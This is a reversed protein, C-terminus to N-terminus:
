GGCGGLSQGTCPPLAVPREQGDGARGYSGEDSENRPVVLYYHDGAGSDFTASTAGGTSCIAESAPGAHSYWSGIQGEYVEYDTDAESCSPNWTLTISPTPTGDGRRLTLGDVSGGPAASILPLFADTSGDALECLTTATGPGACHNTTTTSTGAVAESAVDEIAGSPSYDLTFSGRSVLFTWRFDDGHEFPACGPCDFAEWPL